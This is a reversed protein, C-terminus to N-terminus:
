TWSTRRDPKGPTRVLEGLSAQGPGAGTTLLVRLSPQGAALEGALGALDYGPYGTDILHAAPACLSAVATLEHTRHQVLTAVPVLGAKLLGYWALVAALDNNLQLLVREGPGLGLGRLGVAVRDTQEDLEAFTLRGSPGIM